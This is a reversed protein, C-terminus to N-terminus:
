NGNDDEDPERALTEFLTQFNTQLSEAIDGLSGEIYHISSRLEELDSTDAGNCIVRFLKYMEGLRCIQTDLENLQSFHKV